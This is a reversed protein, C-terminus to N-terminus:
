RLAGTADDIGELCSEIGPRGPAPIVLVPCPASAVVKASVSGVRLLHHLGTRGQTAMVIMDVGEEKAKEVINNHVRGLEVVQRVEAFNLYDPFEERLLKELVRKRRAVKECVSIFDECTSMWEHGNDVVHYVIVEAGRSRAMEFAHRIGVRSLESLDTPALIKRVRKM